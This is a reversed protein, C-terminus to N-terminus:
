FNYVSQLQAMREAKEKFDNQLQQLEKAFLEVKKFDMSSFDRDTLFSDTEEHVDNVLLQAKIGLEYIQKKIAIFQGLAREREQNM